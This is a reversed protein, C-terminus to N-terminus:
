DWGRGPVSCFASVAGPSSQNECPSTSSSPPIKCCDCCYEREETTWMSFVKACDLKYANPLGCLNTTYNATTFNPVLVNKTAYNNSKEREVVSNTPDAHVLIKYNLNVIGAAIMQAPTGFTITQGPTGLDYVDKYGPSIGQTGTECSGTFARGMGSSTEIDQDFEEGDLLCFSLKGSTKKVCSGSYYGAITPDKCASSTSILSMTLFDKYHVHNHGIHFLFKNCSAGSCPVEDCTSPTCGVMPNYNSKYIIQKAVANAINTINATNATVKLPGNGVNATGAAVRLAIKDYQGTSTSTSSRACIWKYGDLERSDVFLDPLLQHVDTTKNIKFDETRCTSSIMRDQSCQYVQCEENYGDHYRYFYADKYDPHKLTVRYYRNTPLHEDEAETCEGMYPDFGYNYGYNLGYNEDLTSMQYDPTTARYSEEWYQTPLTTAAEPWKYWKMAVSGM